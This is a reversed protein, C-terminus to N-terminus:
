ALVGDPTAEIIATAFVSATVALSFAAAFFKSGFNDIDFM